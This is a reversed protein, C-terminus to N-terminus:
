SFGHIGILWIKLKSIADTNKVTRAPDGIVRQFYEHGISTELKVLNNCRTKVQLCPTGYKYVLDHKTRSKILKKGVIHNDMAIKVAENSVAGKLLRRKHVQKIPIDMHNATAVMFLPFLLCTM